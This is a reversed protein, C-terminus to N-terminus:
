RRTSPSACASEEDKMPPGAPYLRRLETIGAAFSFKFRVTEAGARGLALRLPPDRALRTLAEALRAPEDPPVLVGTAGNAILEPVAAAASAVCALEQSMAEMLVNPLGDRDGDRAVRNALVFIDADRYAALVREQPQAGLWEIAEAVGRKKALRRLKERLPGGGIHTLRWHLDPPLRALAEILVDYGKKQVARGISLVRVPERPDAGTRAGPRAPPRAFRQPDLGHYCLRVKNPNPALTALHAQGMRTCTVLWQCDALKESKEWEPITWIDKAHASCTWPLQTMAATYRAVSAPTHLFHAHLQTTGEPLERALVAAQGFRRIRNPTPDRRLDRLWIRRAASYGPLRRATRWARWVRLPADWLYEPLYTVPAVIERHVPHLAGETPRRLSIIAIKVGRRELGRIEQAIFTESLRPYGKLVFAVVGSL